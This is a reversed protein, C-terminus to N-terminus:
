RVGALRPLLARAPRDGRGRGRLHPLVRRSRARPRGRRRRAGVGPVDRGLGAHSLGHSARADAPARPLVREARILQWLTRSGPDPSSPAPNWAAAAPAASREQAAARVGLLTLASVVFTAGDVAFAPAAGVAAVLVGGIAPGVLIALQTWGSSLAIGSQLDEEPLLTPIIALSGPMFLGSAFGLPVALPALLGLSPPGAAVEVVLAAMLAARAADTGLMVTWLRMRDALWGGILLAATRATGYCALVAGLLLANGHHSLVYWPLAVAYFLDGVNSTLQGIALLRFPRHHLPAFSRRM